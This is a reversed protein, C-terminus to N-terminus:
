KWFFEIECVSNGQAKSKNISYTVGSCNALELARKCWGGFRYELAKDLHEFKTIRIGASNADISYAEVESPQYYTSIIKSARQILFNPSAVILFVKYLGKLALDASFQGLEDGCQKEDGKFFMECISSIPVLYCEVIPFWETVNIASEYLERTPAPLTQMWKNYESPYKNKVFDRTTKLATGKVEM